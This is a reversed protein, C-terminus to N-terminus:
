IASCIGKHLSGIYQPSQHAQLVSFTKEMFLMLNVDVFRTTRLKQAVSNAITDCLLTSMKGQKQLVYASTPFFLELSCIGNKRIYDPHPEVARLAM